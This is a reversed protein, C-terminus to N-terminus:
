IVTKHVAITVTQKSRTKEFKLHSNLGWYCTSEFGGYNGGSFDIM